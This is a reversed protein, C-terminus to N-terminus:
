RLVSREVALDPSSVRDGSSRVEITWRERVVSISRGHIGTGGTVPPFIALEDDDTLPHDLGAQSREITSGNVLFNIHDAPLGDDDVVDERLSPYREFLLELVEEVTADADLPIDVERHGVTEALNAFVKVQM